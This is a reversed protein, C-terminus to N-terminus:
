SGQPGPRPTKESDLGLETRLALKDVKDLSTRPLSGPAIVLGHPHKYDALRDALFVQLAGPDLSAGEALRVVALVDQGLIQHTVGLVAAEVIAPHEYLANEVEISYINYGGRIIMDKKRDVVYVFGDADIYGLDGTHVWGDQWTQATSEPEGFYFRRGGGIRILLEGVNNAPLPNGHKDVVRVGGEEIPKGVSGPHRLTEGPPLLCAADGGETLGYGNVLMAQPFTTTLWRTGQPPMPATSFLVMWVSSTDVGDLVGAERLLLVQAPVVM